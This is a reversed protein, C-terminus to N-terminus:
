GCSKVARSVEEREFLEIILPDDITFHLLWHRFWEAPLHDELLDPWSCGFTSLSVDWQVELGDSHIAVAIKRGPVDWWVRGQSATRALLLRM